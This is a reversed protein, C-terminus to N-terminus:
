RVMDDEEENWGCQCDVIDGQHDDTPNTTSRTSRTKGRAATSLQLKRSDLEEIKRQSLQLMSMQEAIERFQQRPNGSYEAPQTEELSETQSPM